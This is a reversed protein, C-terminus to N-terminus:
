SVSSEKLKAVEAKLSDIEEKAKALENLLLNVNNNALDVALASKYENSTM